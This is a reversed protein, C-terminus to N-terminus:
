PKPAAPVDAETTIPTGSEALPAVFHILRTVLKGNKGQARDLEYHM